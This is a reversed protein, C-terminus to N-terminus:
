TQWNVIKAFSDALLSAGGVLVGDIGDQTMIDKINDPKVSGGYQIRVQEGASTGFKQTILGRIFSIVEKADQPTANRGTGIAWIPEYAVVLKVVQESTLDLLGQEIQDQCVKFTVGTEREQLTEGLCFIPIL